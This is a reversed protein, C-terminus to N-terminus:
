FKIKSLQKKLKEDYKWISDIDIQYTKTEMTNIQLFQLTCEYETMPIITLVIDANKAIGIEVSKNKESWESMNFEQEKEIADMKTRDVVTLNNKNSIYQIVKAVLIQADLKSTM